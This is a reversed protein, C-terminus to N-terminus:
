RKPWGGKPKPKRLATAVADEWNGDIKLREPQPGRKLAASPKAKAAKYIAATLGAKAASKLTRKKLKM